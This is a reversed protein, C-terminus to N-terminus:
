WFLRNTTTRTYKINEPLAAVWAVHGDAYLANNGVINYDEWDNASGIVGGAGRATHLAYSARSVAVDTMYGAKSPIFKVKVRIDTPLNRFRSVPLYAEHLEIKPLPHGGNIFYASSWLQWGMWPGNTLTPDEFSGHGGAYHYRFRQAGTSASEIVTTWNNQMGTVLPDSPCGAMGRSIGYSSVMQRMADRTTQGPWLINGTGSSDNPPLWQKNDTAYLSMSLGWQRLNSGCVIRRSQERASGLAPLLISILMAIIAIVVLLEVLTFGSPNQAHKITFRPQIRRTM